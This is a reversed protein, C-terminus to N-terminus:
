KSGTLLVARGLFGLEIGLVWMLHSVVMAVRIGPSDLMEESRQLSKCVLM